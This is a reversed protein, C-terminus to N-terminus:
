FVLKNSQSSKSDRLGINSGIKPVIVTNRLLDSLENIGLRSGDAFTFNQNLKEIEKVVSWEYDRLGIKWSQGAETSDPKFSQTAARTLRNRNESVYHARKQLAKRGTSEWANAKLPYKKESETRLQDDIESTKLHIEHESMSSLVKLVRELSEPTDMLKLNGLKYAMTHMFITKKKEAAKLFDKKNMTKSDIQSLLIEVHEQLGYASSQHTTEMDKRVEDPGGPAFLYAPKLNRLAQLHSFGDKKYDLPASDGAFYIPGDDHGHIMYGLFTSSHGGCPGQGAWHRAPTAQIKMEYSEQGQKFKLQASEWWNLQNVNKFGMKLYRWGDGKPVIMVPQQALLKKITTASYHDLHNHSLLYVHPAPIEDMKKAFRTMRPYLLKNLDGEVPDTIVRIVASKNPNSKCRLPISFLNTAHGLWYSSPQALQGNVPQSEDGIELPSDESYIQSQDVGPAYRYKEFSKAKLGVKRLMGGVANLLREKQTSSFINKAESMHNIGTGTETLDTPYRSVPYNFGFRREKMILPADSAVYGSPAELSVGELKVSSLEPLHKSNMESLKIKQKVKGAQESERNSVSQNFRQIASALESSSDTDSRNMSQVQATLTGVVKSVESNHRASGLHLALLLRKFFSSKALKSGGSTQVVSFKSPDLYAGEEVSSGLIRLNDIITKIHSQTLPQNLDTCDSHAYASSSAIVAYTFILNFLKWNRKMIPSGICFTQWQELHRSQLRSFLFSFDLETIGCFSNEFLM